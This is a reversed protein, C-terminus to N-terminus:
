EGFDMTDVATILNRLCSLLDGPLEGTHVQEGKRLAILQLFPATDIKLETHIMRVVEEADVPIKKVGKLRLVGRFLAGMSGYWNKLWTRLIRQKGRSAVVAQRLSAIAGRLRDEVQHRLNKLSLSLQATIDEGLLIKKRDQIDLYEMPFVDASNVFETQSLILPTIKYKRMFRYGDRGFTELQGADPKDLLILINVDSVGEVFNGSVYSGYISVMTLNDGFVARLMELFTNEVVAHITKKRAMKGRQKELHKRFNKEYHLTIIL